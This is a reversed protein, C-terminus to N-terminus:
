KDNNNKQNHKRLLMKIHGLYSDHALIALVRNYELKVM